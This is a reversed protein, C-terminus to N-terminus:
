FSVVPLLRPDTVTSINVLKTHIGGDQLIVNVTAMSVTYKKLTCNLKDKSVFTKKKQKKKTTKQM